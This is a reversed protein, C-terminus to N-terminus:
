NLIIAVLGKVNQTASVDGAMNNTIFSLRTNDDMLFFTQWTNSFNSFEADSPNTDFSVADRNM